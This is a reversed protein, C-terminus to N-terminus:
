ANENPRAGMARKLTEDLSLMRIKLLRQAKQVNLIGNKHRPARGPSAATRPKLLTEGYGLLRAARRALEYRDVAETSGIHVIGSSTGEILELLSEALTHVDVPTRVEDVACAVEKGSKLSQAFTALFSNGGNVPFGLVLSVRVVV